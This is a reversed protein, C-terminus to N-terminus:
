SWGFLADGAHQLSIRVLGIDHYSRQASSIAAPLETGMGSSALARCLKMCFLADHRHGQKQSKGDSFAGNARRKPGRRAGFLKKFAKKPKRSLGKYGEFPRVESVGEYYVEFDRGLVQPTDPVGEVAVGAVNPVWRHRRRPELEMAIAYPKM